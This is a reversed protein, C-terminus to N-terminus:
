RMCKWYKSLKKIRKHYDENKKKYRNWDEDTNGIYFANSGISIIPKNLYSSFAQRCYDIKDEWKAHEFFEKQDFASLFLEFAFQLDNENM